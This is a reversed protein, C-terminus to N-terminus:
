SPFLTNVKVTSLDSSHYCERQSYVQRVQQELRQAYRINHHACRSINQEATSHIQCRAPRVARSKVKLSLCLHPRHMGCRYYLTIAWSYNAQLCYESTPRMAGGM